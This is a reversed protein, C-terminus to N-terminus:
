SFESVCLIPLAEPSGIIGSTTGFEFLFSFHAQACVDYNARFQWGALLETSLAQHCVLIAEMSNQIGYSAIRVAAM